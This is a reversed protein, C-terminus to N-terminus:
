AIGCKEEGVRTNFAASKGYGPPSAMLDVAMPSKAEQSLFLQKM